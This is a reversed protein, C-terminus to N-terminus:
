QSVTRVAWVSFVSLGSCDANQFRNKLHLNQRHCRFFSGHLLDDHEAFARYPSSGDDQPPQTAGSGLILVCQRRHSRARGGAGPAAKRAVLFEEAGAM